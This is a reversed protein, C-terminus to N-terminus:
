ALVSQKDDLGAHIEPAELDRDPWFSDDLGDLHRAINKDINNFLPKVIAPIKNEFEEGDIMIPVRLGRHDIAEGIQMAPISHRHLNKLLRPEVIALAYKVGQQRGLAQLGLYLSLLTCSSSFQKTMTKSADKRGIHRFDKDIALRSIEAYKHGSNKIMDMIKQDLKGACHHEIPLTKREGNHYGHVLRACGIYSKVQRNYVVIQSSHADYEDQEIALTNGEEFNLEKCYVSHRIRYAHNQLETSTAPVVHYSNTFLHFLDGVQSLASKYKALTAMKFIRGM